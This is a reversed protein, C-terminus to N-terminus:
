EENNDGWYEIYGEPGSSTIIDNDEIMVVIIEPEQYKKM